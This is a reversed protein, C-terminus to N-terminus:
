APPRAPPSLTTAETHSGRNGRQTHAVRHYSIASRCTEVRSDTGSARTFILVSCSIRLQRVDFCRVGTRGQQGTWTVTVTVTGTGTVDRGRPRGCNIISSQGAQWEGV